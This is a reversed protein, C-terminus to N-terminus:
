QRSRRKTGAMFIPVFSTTRLCAFQNEWTRPVLRRQLIQGPRHNSYGQRNGIWRSAADELEKESVSRLKNMPLVCVFRLLHAAATRANTRSAGCELLHTIFREREAALPATRHRLLAYPEEICQEFM